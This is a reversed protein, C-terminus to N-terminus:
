LIAFRFLRIKQRKGLPCRECKLEPARSETAAFLRCNATYSESVPSDEPAARGKVSCFFQEHWASATHLKRSFSIGDNEESPEAESAPVIRPLKVKRASGSVARFTASLTSENVAVALFTQGGAHQTSCGPEKRNQPAVKDEANARVM